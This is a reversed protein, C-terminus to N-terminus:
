ELPPTKWEPIAAAPAPGVQFSFEDASPIGDGNIDDWNFVGRVTYPVGQLLPPLPGPFYLPMVGTATGDAFLAIGTPSTGEMTCQSVEMSQGHWGEPDAFLQAFTAPVFLRGGSSVGPPPGLRSEMRVTELRIGIHAVAWGAAIWLVTLGAGAGRRWGGQRMFSHIGYAALCAAPAASPLFYRLDELERTWNGAASLRRYLIFLYLGINAAACLALLLVGRERRRAVVIPLFLLGPMALALLAVRRPASRLAELLEFGGMINSAMPAIGAGGSKAMQGGFWYGNGFPSGFFHVNYALLPVVLLLLGGLFPALRTAGRQAAIRLPPRGESNRDEDIAMTWAWVVPGVLIAATSYRMWIAAGMAMGALVSLALRFAPNRPAHHAEVFLGISLCAFATTSVDAMGKAWVMILVIGSAMMLLAALAATGWGFLRGAMRHTAVTAIGFLIIGIWHAMRARRFLGLLFAYGPAKRNVAVYRDGIKVVSAFANCGKGKKHVSVLFIGDEEPLLVEGAGVRTTLGQQIQEPRSDPITLLIEAGAVPAGCIDAVRIPVSRFFPDFACSEVAIEARYPVPGSMVLVASDHLVKGDALPYEVDVPYACPDLGDFTAKGASDAYQRVRSRGGSRLSVDAGAAPRGDSLIAQVTAEGDRGEATTTLHYLLDGYVAVEKQGFVDYWDSLPVSWAGQNYFQAWVSYAMEDPIAPHEFSHPHVLVFVASVVFVIALLTAANCRAKPTWGIVPNSRSASMYASLWIGSGRGAALAPKTGRPGM